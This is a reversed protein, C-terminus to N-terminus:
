IIILTRIDLLEENNYYLEITENPIEFYNILNHKLLSILITSHVKIRFLEKKHVVKLIIIIISPKQKEDKVKEIINNSGLKLRKQIEDHIYKNWSFFINTINRMIAINKQSSVNKKMNRKQSRLIKKM